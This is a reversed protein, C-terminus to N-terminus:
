TIELDNDSNWNNYNVNFNWQLYEVEVRWMQVNDNDNPIVSDFGDDNVM